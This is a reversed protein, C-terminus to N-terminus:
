RGQEKEAEIEKRLAQNKRKIREAATIADEQARGARNARQEDAWLHYAAPDIEDGSFAFVFTDRNDQNSPVPAVRRALPGVDRYIEGFVTDGPNGEPLVTKKLEPTYGIEVRCTSSRCEVESLTLGPYKEFVARPFRQKIRDEMAPAWQQNRPEANYLDITSVGSVAKVISYAVPRPVPGTNGAPDTLQARMTPPVKKLGALTKPRDPREGSRSAVGETAERAGTSTAVPARRLSVLLVGLAVGVLAFVIILRKNM